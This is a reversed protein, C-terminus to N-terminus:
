LNNRAIGQNWLEGLPRRLCCTAIFYNSEENHLNWSNSVQRVLDWAECAWSLGQPSWGVVVAHRQPMRKPHWYQWSLHGSLPQPLGLAPDYLSFAGAEGYNGTLIVADAREAPTLRPARNSGERSSAAPDRYRKPRM